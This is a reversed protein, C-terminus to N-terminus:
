SRRKVVIMGVLAVAVAALSVGFVIFVVLGPIEPGPNKKVQKVVEVEANAESGTVDRVYFKILVSGAELDKWANEDITGESGSFEIPEGGNLTYWTLEINAETIQVDYNPPSEFEQGNTPSNISILPAQTDKFVTVRANRENGMTDNAYFVIEVSGDELGSWATSNVTGASTGNNGPLYIPNGGNVTYWATDLEDESIWIEYAPPSSDLVQDDMPFNITINPGILQSWAVLVIEISSTNDILQLLVGTATDYRVEVDESISIAVYECMRGGYTGSQTGHMVKIEEVTTNPYILKIPGWISENLLQDTQPPSQETYITGLPSFPYDPVETVVIGVLEHYAGEIWDYSWEEGVDVLWRAPETPKKVVSWNVLIVQMVDTGSIMTQNLVIGTAKDIYIVENPFPTMVVYECLIGGYYGTQTGNTTEIQNITSNDYVYMSLDMDEEPPSEEYYITGLPSNPYEPVATVNIGMSMVPYDNMTFDYTWEDGVEVLWCAPPTEAVEWSVLIYQMVNAGAIITHNLVIGTATDICLILTPDPMDVVYECLIGGYYGTQTGNTTEIQNITFSDYVYMSLDVNEEPPSEEYYITGLPSNPYEPVATVEFGKSSMTNGDMIMDYTWEDGVEVLWRAPEITLDWDILIFDEYVGDKELVIGSSNHIVYSEGSDTVVICECDIGDYNRSEYTGIGRYYDLLEEVFVFWYGISEDLIPSTFSPYLDAIVPGDPQTVSTVRISLLGTGLTGDYDYTWSDGESVEYNATVKTTMVCCSLLFGLVITSILVRKKSFKM